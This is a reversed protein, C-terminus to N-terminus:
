SIAAPVDRGGAGGGQGLSLFCGPITEYIIHGLHIPNSGPHPQPPSPHLWQGPSGRDRGGGSGAGGNGKGIGKSRLIRPISSFNNHSSARSGRATNRSQSPLVFNIGLWHDWNAAGAFHLLTKTPFFICGFSSFPNLVPFQHILSQPLHRKKKEKEGRFQYRSNLKVPKHQFILLM